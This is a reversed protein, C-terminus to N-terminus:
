KAPHDPETNQTAYKVGERPVPALVAFINNDGPKRVIQIVPVPYGFAEVLNITVINRGPKAKLRFPGVQKIKLDNKNEM